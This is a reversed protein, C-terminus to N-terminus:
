SEHTTELIEFEYFVGMDGQQRLLSALAKRSLEILSPLM